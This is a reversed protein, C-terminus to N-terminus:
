SAEVLHRLIKGTSSKPLHARVEFIRPIKYASLHERAYERLTEAHPPSAPDRPTVIARLRFVTDSLRLPLVVCSEVAPHRALLEEVELPNVKLGGVDILLKARGTITLNENADIHGLDGTQFFGNALPDHADIYGDFMSPARAVVQGDDVRINVGDMPRGVSAPDFSADRPDSFTISGIETAGYLQGLTIRSALADFINRPLPAGASYAIRVSDLKLNECRSLMEFMSPVGPFITIRDRAFSQAVAALDFGEHLSVASGAFLPALVGHELGYSHCLPVAALVRDRNEFGIAGCINAAVADLSRASRHVIKPGGTTGSSQLLLSPEAFRLASTRAILANFETPVTQPSIPFATGGATLTALFDVPFATTNAIRIIRVAGAPIGKALSSVCEHLERWTLADFARDDPRDTAHRALSELLQMSM